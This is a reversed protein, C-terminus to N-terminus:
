KMTIDVFIRVKATLFCCITNTNHLLCPHLMSPAYHEVFM